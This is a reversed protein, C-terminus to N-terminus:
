LEEERGGERGGWGRGYAQVKGVEVAVLAYKSHPHLLPGHRAMAM